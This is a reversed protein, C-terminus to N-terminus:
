RAHQVHTAVKQLSKGVFVKNDCGPLGCDNNYFNKQTKATSMIQSQWKKTTLDCIDM